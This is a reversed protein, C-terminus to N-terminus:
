SFGRIFKQKAVDLMFLHATQNTCWLTTCVDVGAPSQGGFSIYLTQCNFNHQKSGYQLDKQSNYKM